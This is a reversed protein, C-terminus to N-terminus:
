KKLRTITPRETIPESTKISPKRSKLRTNIQIEDFMLHRHYNIQKKREVMVAVEKRIDPPAIGSLIQIKEVPTSKLCGTIIRNTNNLVVDLNKAHASFRWVSSAYEGASYCLALGSMRLVKPCAGWKTGALKQLINNRTAVKRGTDECHVKYTLTRDFKVWLYKPNDVHDIIVGQWEINLKRKAERNRLHYACVQTKHNNPRLYNREYYEVLIVLSEKITEEIEEFNSKSKSSNQTM